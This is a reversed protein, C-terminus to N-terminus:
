VVLSPRSPSPRQREWVELGGRQATQPKPATTRVTVDFALRFGGKGEFRRKYIEHEQSGVGLLESASEMEVQVKWDKLGKREVERM